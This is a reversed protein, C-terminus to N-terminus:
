DDAVGSAAREGRASLGVDEPEVEERLFAELAQGRKPGRHKVGLEKLARYATAWGVGCADAVAAVTEEASYVDRVREADVGGPLLEQNGTDTM